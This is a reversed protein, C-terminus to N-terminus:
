QSDANHEGKTKHRDDGAGEKTHGADDVLGLAAKSNKALIDICIVVCDNCIAAGDGAILASVHASGRSCFGCRVQRVRGM